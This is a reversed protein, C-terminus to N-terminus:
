FLVFGVGIYDRKLHYTSLNDSFGDFYRANFWTNTGPIMKWRLDVTYTINGLADVSGVGSRLGLDVVLNPKNEPNWFCTRFSKEAHVRLGDVDRLKTDNGEEWWIDDSSGGGFYRFEASVKWWSEEELPRIVSYKSGFTYKASLYDCGRSVGALTYDTIEGDKNLRGDLADLPNGVDPEEITQGNSRHFAGLELQKFWKSDSCLNLEYTVGPNQERSIVPSSGYPSEGDVYFDYLGNYVFNIRHNPDIVYKQFWGDDKCYKDFFKFDSVLPYKLSIYFEMHSQEEMKNEQPWAWLVRNPNYASVRKYFTNEVEEGTVIRYERKENPTLKTETEADAVFTVLLLSSM